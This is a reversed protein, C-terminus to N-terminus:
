LYDERVPTFVDLVITDELAHVEHEVEGPVVFSDGAGAEFTEDGCFVRIKGSVIFALQEHPHHHRPFISGGRMTHRTLMLRENHALVERDLGPYPNTVEADGNRVRWRSSSVADASM